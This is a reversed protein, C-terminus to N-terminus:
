PHPQASGYGGSILMCRVDAAGPLMAHKTLQNGNTSLVCLLAKHEHTHPNIIAAVPTTTPDCHQLAKTTGMQMVAVKAESYVVKAM